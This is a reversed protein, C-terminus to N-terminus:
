GVYCGAPLRLKTGLFVRFSSEASFYPLPVQDMSRCILDQGLEDSSLAPFFLLHSPPTGGGGGRGSNDESGRQSVGALEGEPGRGPRRWKVLM